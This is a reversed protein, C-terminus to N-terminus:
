ATVGTTVAIRFDDRDSYGASEEPNVDYSHEEFKAYTPIAARNAKLRNAVLCWSFSQGALHRPLDNLYPQSQM